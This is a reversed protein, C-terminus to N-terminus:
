QITPPEALSLGHSTRRDVLDAQEDLRVIRGLDVAECVLDTSHRTGVIGLRIM